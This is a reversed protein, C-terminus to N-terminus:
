YRRQISCANLRREAIPDLCLFLCFNWPNWSMMRDIWSPVSGCVSLGVFHPAISVDDAAVAALCARCGMRNTAYAMAAAVLQGM